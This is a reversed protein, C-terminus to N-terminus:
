EETLNAFMNGIAVMEDNMVAKKKSPSTRKDGRGKKLYEYAAKAIERESAGQNKALGMVHDVAKEIRTTNFIDGTVELTDKVMDIVNFRTTISDRFEQTNANQLFIRQAKEIEEELIEDARTRGKDMVEQITNAAIPDDLKNLLELVGPFYKDVIEYIYKADVKPKEFRSVYDIQMMMYVSILRDVIGHTVIYLAENISSDAKVPEDFWQYKMLSTVITSFYSTNDCYTNANILPGTRRSTRLNPFMKEYADETGVAVLAVNTRNVINLFSEFTSEKTGKFDLLQIEDLILAGIGFKEIFECIKNTKEGLTRCKSIIREYVPETNGVIKDLEIGISTYLASFNSNAPCVVPLYVIQPFRVMDESEHIILQPYNSLLIEMASSKGCGSYGLVKVGSNAAAGGNAVLSVGTEIEQNEEIIKIGSQFKQYRERYSTILAMAFQTELVPHFPLMCRFKRLLGIESLKEFDSMSSVKSANYGPIDKTYAIFCEMQNRPRPLAEIYPNGNDYGVNSKVYVAKVPAGHSFDVDDYQRSGEEVETYEYKM